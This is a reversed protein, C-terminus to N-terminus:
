TLRAYLRAESWWSWRDSYCVGAHRSAANVTTLVLAILADIWRADIERIMRM